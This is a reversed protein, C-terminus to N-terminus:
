KSYYTLVHTFGAINTDSMNEVEPVDEDTLINWRQPRGDWLTEVSWNCYGLFVKKIENFAGAGESSHFRAIVDDLSSSVSDIQTIKIIRSSYDDSYKREFSIRVNPTKSSYRSMDDLIRKIGIEINWVYTYFDAKELGEATISLNPHTDIQRKVIDVLVPKVLRISSRFRLITQAFQDNSLLHVGPNKKAWDSWKKSSYNEEQVKNEFDRWLLRRGRFEGFIFARLTVWLKKPIVYKSTTYIFCNRVQEMFREYDMDSDPDFDHTLFKFGNPDNFLSLFSATDKPHHAFEKKISPVENHNELGEVSKLKVLLRMIRDKDAQTASPCNYLEQIFNEYNMVGM